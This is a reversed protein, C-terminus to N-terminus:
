QVIHNTYNYLINKSIAVPFYTFAFVKGDARNSNQELFTLRYRLNGMKM